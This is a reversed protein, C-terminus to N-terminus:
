GRGERREERGVESGSAGVRGRPSQPKEAHILHDTGLPELSDAAGRPGARQDRVCIGEVAFVQPLLEAAGGRALHPGNLWDM